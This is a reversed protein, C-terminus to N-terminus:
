GGRASVPDLRRRAALARDATARDHGKAFTFLLAWATLNDPERHLVDELVGAADGHRGMRQYLFARNVDPATDPNLRRAARFDADAAAFDRRQAASVGAAQRRVDLEMVALWAVLLVSAVAVVVRTV